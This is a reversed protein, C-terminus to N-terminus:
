PRSRKVILDAVIGILGVQLAFLFLLTTSDTLNHLWFVDYCLRAMGLGFLALCIPLFVRLPNFYTITRVIFVLFNLADVPKIKSRGERKYYDISEYHVQYGDSIMALTITTTLSFGNPLIHFYREAIKKRFVRFGSNLDPIKMDVLYNAIRNLLWKAPRRILPVHVKGGTRAGVVMDHAEMGALLRPLEENPYTGDADTIAVLPYSSHGIGTKIAAGYGRNALHRLVRIRDSFADLVEATGDTSGDDVVILEVPCNLRDLVELLQELVLKASRAENYVPVVMSLGECMKQDAM